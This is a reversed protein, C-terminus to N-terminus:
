RASRAMSPWLVHRKMLLVWTPAAPLSSPSGHQATPRKGIASFAPQRPTTTTSPAACNEALGNLAEHSLRILLLPAGNDRAASKGACLVAETVGIRSARDFDMRYPEFRVEAGYGHRTSLYTAADQLAAGQDSLLAALNAEYLEIAIGEHRLRCRATLPALHDRVLSEVRDIFQLAAAEVAIGTEVRSSFCPAALLEAPDDLGLTRAMARVDQKTMAAEVWPHRVGRDRAAELGPGYDGLDDLDTGSLITTDNHRAITPYLNTKCFFCLNVPIRLYDADDFEGALIIDLNWGHRQAHRRVWDGADRSM